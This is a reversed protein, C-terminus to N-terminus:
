DSSTMERLQLANQAAYGNEDNDFYFYVDLGKNAWATVAGAWGALCSKTYKGKYAGEPGHLRIYVFDATVKKKSVRGDFEYICWAANKDQLMKFIEENEWSPDRFEFAYRRDNDLTQLFERLRQPNARWKPPLQFLVPGAKPGLASVREMFNGVTEEPDKLKKMHTIFRSAKISFTFGEPTRNKWEELAKHKPLQYFSNNIETTHFWKAYYELYNEKKLDQPYFPGSWHEYHWGSTGVHIKNGAPPM